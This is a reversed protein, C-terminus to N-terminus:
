RQSAEAAGAGADDSPGAESSESAHKDNEAIDIRAAARWLRELDYYLRARESFIHVVFSGYDLLVWESGARGEAHRIYVGARDLREEIADRIAELQPHSQGSCILFFESFASMGRMDLVTLHEAKKDQAAEIAWRIEPSIEPNRNEAM